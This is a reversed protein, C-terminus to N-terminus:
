SFLAILEASARLDDAQQQSEAKWQVTGGKAKVGRVGLSRLASAVKKAVYKADAGKGYRYHWYKAM